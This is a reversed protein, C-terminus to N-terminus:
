HSADESTDKPTQTDSSCASDGENSAQGSSPKKRASSPAEGHAMAHLLADFRAQPDDPM